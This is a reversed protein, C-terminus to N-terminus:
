IRANDDSKAPFECKADKENATYDATSYTHEDDGTVLSANEYVNDSPQGASCGGSNSVVTQKTNSFTVTKTAAASSTGSKKEERLGLKILWHTKVQDNLVIYFLFVFCGQFSSIENTYLIM